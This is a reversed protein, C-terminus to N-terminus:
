NNKGEETLKPIKAQKAKEEEEKKEKEPVYVAKAVITIDKVSMTTLREIEKRIKDKFERLATLINFGFNISVEM